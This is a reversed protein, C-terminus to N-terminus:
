AGDPNQNENYEEEKECYNLADMRGPHYTKCFRCYWLYDHKIGKRNWEAILEEVDIVPNSKNGQM